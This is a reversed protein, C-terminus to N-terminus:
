NTQKGTSAADTNCFVNFAIKYFHEIIIEHSLPLQSLLTSRVVLKFQALIEAQRKEIDRSEDTDTLQELRKLLPLFGILSEYLGDVAGKFEEFGTEENKVNKFKSWFSPAVKQRIYRDIEHNVLAEFRKTLNVNKIEEVIKLYEKDTCANEVQFILM